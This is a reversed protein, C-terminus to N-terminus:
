ESQSLTPNKYSVKKNPDPFFYLLLLPLLFLDALLAVILTIFIMLGMYFTGMFDSVLLMSFGGILIITTLLIAKGTGLYTSKLAYVKTKGKSLEMKFNSLFHITDDIAIGFSITFVIATTIKLNIGFFGMVGAIVILPILNPVISIVLMRLSRFLMGMLLSVIIIAFSLGEMLSSSIYNMNRDLLHATGTLNVTFYQDLKQASIFRYFKENQENSQISGWDPLNGSVRTTHEKQDLVSQIFKGQDAIKLMRKFQTVARKSSPVNFHSTDGAHAARNLLSLYRVLSLNVNVGYENQLYNDIQELAQLREVKWFSDTTDKLSIALEFPRVGGFTEDFYDFDQKLPSKPNVDNMIYNNAVIKSTGYISVFVLLIGMVLITKRNKITIIFLNSLIPKWFNYRNAKSIKPVPSLYFVFPLSAYTIVLAFLVGIGTYLGFDQIPIINAVLLSFFGIATTLSTLLTATGIERFTAKIAKSKSLGSRLLALYKSIWHIVDSMSVVFMISPLVILLINIPKGILAMFGFIWIMSGIVVLQPVWLGWFSKYFILLFVVMIIFSLLIYNTMEGLMTDIYYLQGITRGAMRVNEFDFKQTIAKVDSIFQDSKAKSLYDKHRIFVTLVDGKANVLTNVLEKNKYIRLSDQTFQTGDLHIYPKEGTIGNTYIFLEKERTIDRTFLVNPLTDLAKAYANVKKLFSSDFIGDKREIAILLFDNDSKFLARHAYFLSTAEDEAPFFEEFNYNLTTKPIQIAFFVTIISVLTIM